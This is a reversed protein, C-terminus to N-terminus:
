NIRINASKILRAWVDTEAKIHAAFQQPDKAVVELGIRGIATRVEPMALIKVAAEHLAKVIPEPTGTPVLFAQWSSVDFGPFGSEAITPLEPALPSRSSGTVALANVRGAKVHRLLSAMSGFYAQVENSLVAASAPGGGKYPVHTMDIGARVKFLEAAFHHPSGVGITAYNLKGPEAKAIAILEKVNKAKVSPHTVLMYQSSALLTVPQLDKQIDFSLKYLLPSVTIMTSLALLVTHGDPSARAVIESAINGAAGARNDVVWPQGLADNLKTTIIRAFTDATGGPPFGVVLRIPRAPYNPTDAALALSSCNLATVAVAFGFAKRVPKQLRM